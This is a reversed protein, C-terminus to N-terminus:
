EVAHLVKRVTEVMHHIEESTAIFPPAVALTDGTFRLLVGADLGKEFAELARQGAKGERPTLEVAAALGFNRIDTVNPEGRLSHMRDELVKALEASRAIAGSKEMADLTANGAACALPHGSYTYGHFLEIAHAPGTMFADHIDQRVIVGGFPVVGNTVAKAFAIMDPTVGLRQAGFHAGVRGFGTIVEDFILLIGNRTCIERLRELYGQPPAIVGASGQMPEVIVAAITEAGHKAILDNLSDALHAGWAPQGKSFRTEQPNYTHPLHDVNPLLLPTFMTRNNQIGGVSTGGIGVGHYGRERGIVKVRTVDGRLRHYAIAIKLATDVSESGSNTFFVRNLGPPAWRAIKSALEFAGPHSLQFGPSYDLTAVQEQVAAVIEPHSHGMPTCWLGSLCDFVRRGDTLTLYAGEGRAVLKPRQKFYRNHTFPMWYSALDLPTATHLPTTANM